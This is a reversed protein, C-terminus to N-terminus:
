TEASLASLAGLLVFWRVSNGSPFSFLGMGATWSWLPGVDGGDSVSLLRPRIGPSSRFAASCRHLEGCGSFEASVTSLPNLARQAPTLCGCCSKGDDSHSLFYPSCVCVGIRSAAVRASGPVVVSCLSPSLLFVPFGVVTLLM